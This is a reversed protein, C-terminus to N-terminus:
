GRPWYLFVTYGVYILLLVAGEWRVVKKGSVLM